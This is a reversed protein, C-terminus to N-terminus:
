ISTKQNDAKVQAKKKYQKSPKKKQKKKKKKQGDSPTKKLQSLMQSIEPQEYWRRKKSGFQRELWFAAEMQIALQLDRFALHKSSYVIRVREKKLYKGPACRIADAVTRPRAKWHDKKNQWAGTGKRPETYEIDDPKFVAKFWPVGELNITYFEWDPSQLLCTSKKGGEALRYHELIEVLKSCSGFNNTGSTGEFLLRLEKRELQSISVASFFDPVRSVNEQDNNKHPNNDKHKIVIQGSNEKRDNGDDDREDITPSLRGNRDGDRGSSERRYFRLENEERLRKQHQFLNGRIFPNSSLTEWPQAEYGDIGDFIELLEAVKDPFCVLTEGLDIASEHFEISQELREALVEVKINGTQDGIWRLAKDILTDDEVNEDQFLGFCLRALLLFAKGQPLLTLGEARFGGGRVELTNACVCYLNSSNDVPVATAPVTSPDIYVQLNTNFRKWRCSPNITKDFYLCIDGDDDDGDDNVGTTNDELPVLRIINERRRSGILASVVRAGEPICNVLPRNWSSVDSINEEDNRNQNVLPKNECLPFQIKQKGAIQRTTSEFRPGLLDRMDVSSLNRTTGFCSLSFKFRTEPELVEPDWPFSLFLSKFDGVRGINELANVISRLEKKSSEEKEKESTTAEKQFVLDFNLRSWTVSSDDSNPKNSPSEVKWLGCARGKIGRHSTGENATAHLKSKTDEKRRRYICEMVSKETASEHVTYVMCSDQFSLCVLSFKNETAYSIVHTELRTKFDSSSSLPPPIYEFNGKQRLECSGKLSFQHREKSLILDLHGQDITDSQPLLDIVVESEGFKKQIRSLSNFDLQIVSEHFVWVQIIRLLTIMGNSMQLPPIKVELLSERLGLFDAVRKRLNVTTSALRRIRPLFINHLTKWKQVEKPKLREYEFVLNM